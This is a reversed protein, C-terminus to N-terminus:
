KEGQTQKMQDRLEDIQQQLNELANVKSEFISKAAEFNKIAYDKVVGALKFASVSSWDPSADELEQRSRKIGSIIQTFQTRLSM